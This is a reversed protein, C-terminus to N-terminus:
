SPKEKSQQCQATLNQHSSSFYHKTQTKPVDTQVSFENAAALSLLEDPYDKSTLISNVRRCFRDEKKKGM